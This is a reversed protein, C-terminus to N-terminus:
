YALRFSGESILTQYIDKDYVLHLDNYKENCPSLYSDISDYRSKTIVFRNEKLPQLFLHKCLLM